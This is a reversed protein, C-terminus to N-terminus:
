WRGPRGSRRPRRRGRGTSPRSTPSRRPPSQDTRWIRGAGAEYPDVAFVEIPRAPPTEACRAALRELVSLGRPGMGVCAIRLPEASPAPTDRPAPEPPPNAAAAQDHERAVRGLMGSLQRSTMPVTRRSTTLLPLAGLDTWHLRGDPAVTSRVAGRNDPHLCFPVDLLGRDFAKLLAVGLDDSLGLVATVM